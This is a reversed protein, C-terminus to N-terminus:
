SVTNALPLESVLGGRVTPLDIQVLLPDLARIYTPDTRASGCGRLFLEVGPPTPGCILAAFPFERSRLERLRWPEQVDYSVSSPRLDTSGTTAHARILDERALVHLASIVDRVADGRDVTTDFALAGLLDELSLFLELNSAIDRHSRLDTSTSRATECAHLQRYVLYHIRIQLGSLRGIQAVTPVAGDNSGGGAVVGGLYDAVIPDDTWAVEQLAKILTREDVNIIQGAAKRRASELMRTARAGVRDAIPDIVYRTALWELGIAVPDLMLDSQRM